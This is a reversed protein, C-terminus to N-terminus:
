KKIPQKLDKGKNAYLMDDQTSGNDLYYQQTMGTTQAASFAGVNQRQTAMNAVRIRDKLKNKRVFLGGVLGGILGVAGGLAAGWPGGISAGLAAGSGTAKLTNGAINLKKNEAGADVNRQYTYGVGNVMGEGTGANAQIEDVSQVQGFSDYMDSGFSATGSIISGLNKGSKTDNWAASSEKGWGYHPMNHTQKRQKLTM